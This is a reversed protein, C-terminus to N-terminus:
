PIPAFSASLAMQSLNKDQTAPKTALVAANKGAFTM